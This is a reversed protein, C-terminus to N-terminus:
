APRVSSNVCQQRGDVVNHKIDTFIQIGGRRAVAFEAEVEGRAPVM